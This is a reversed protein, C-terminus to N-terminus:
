LRFRVGFQVRRDGVLTAKPRYTHGYYQRRESGTLDQGDLTLTIRDTVDYNLSLDLQPYASGYIPLGGAGGGGTSDVYKSRWNYAVRLSIPGKEYIGVLNYSYKSLKELPVSQGVIASPAASDVYTFNAQLGLGDFPAPLFDFFQQYGLEVGKITGNRGNRPRSVLFTQGDIVEPAVINQIFGDVKKYFAAGYLMGGGPMYWELSADLQDARLPQLSPNGASGTLFLYDLRLSPNMSSFTPRTLSKSAAFRLFIDDTLKARINLSPLADVYSNTQVYPEFGGDPSNVASAGRVKTQIVRMGLNGDIPLSFLDFAFDGKVYGAITKESFDFANRPVLTPLDGSLGLAERMGSYDRLVDPKAVLWQRIALGKGPWVDNDTLQFLDSYDTGAVGTPWTFDNSIRSSSASRDAYRIGFKLATLGTDGIDFRADLKAATQSGASKARAFSTRDLEYDSIDTPDIGTLSIRPIFDSLDVNYTSAFGRLGLENYYNRSKSNTYSIDGTLELRDLNYKGGFSVQYTDTLDDSVLGGETQKPNTWMGRSVTLDDEAFEFPGVAQAPSQRIGSNGTNVYFLQNYQHSDFRTYLGDVHLELNDAPAWQFSGNFGLQKRPGYQYNQGVDTPSVILDGDDGPFIGDGDRDYLDRRESFTGTANRDIRYDYKQYAASLLLGMDGIGTEWRHSALLSLYPNVNKRKDGYEAKASGALEFGPFDFPRRLRIDVTGGLGGEIQDAQGTKYVDIGAVLQAPIDSVSLSRGSSTFTDRGNLLTAVQSLGRIAISRGQGQSRQIQVGTIRQLAEAVNNDPLKGIDEAVISDVIASADRKVAAASQLSARVGTVVIEGSDSTSGAEAQSDSGSQASAVNPVTLAMAAVSGMLLGKM